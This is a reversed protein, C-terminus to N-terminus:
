RRPQQGDKGEQYHFASTVARIKEEADRLDQPTLIGKDVLAQRLVPDFPAVAIPDVNQPGEAGRQPGSRHRRVGDPARHGFTASAPVSGDNFPHRPQFDDTHRRGCTHCVDPSMDGTPITTM